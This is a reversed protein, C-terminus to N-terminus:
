DVVQDPSSLDAHTGGRRVLGEADLVGLGSQYYESRFQGRLSPITYKDPKTTRTSGLSPGSLWTSMGGGAESPPELNCVLTEDDRLSAPRSMVVKAFLALLSFRLLM